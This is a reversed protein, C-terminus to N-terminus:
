EASGEEKQENDAQAAKLHKTRFFDGAALSVFISFLFLILLEELAAGNQVFSYVACIHVLINVASIVHKSKELMCSLVCLVAIVVFYLLLLPATSFITSLFKVRGIFIITNCLSVNNINYCM